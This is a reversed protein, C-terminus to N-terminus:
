CCFTECWRLRAATETADLTVTSGPQITIFDSKIQYGSAPSTEEWTSTSGDSVTTVKISPSSAGSDVLYELSMHISTAGGVLAQAPSGGSAVSIEYPSVMAMGSCIPCGCGPYVPYHGCPYTWTSSM